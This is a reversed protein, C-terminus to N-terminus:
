NVIRHGYQWPRSSWWLLIFLGTVILPFVKRFNIKESLGSFSFIYVFAFSHFFINNYEPIYSTVQYIAAEAMIGLILLTFIIFKKDKLTAKQFHNFQSVLVLFIVLLYF